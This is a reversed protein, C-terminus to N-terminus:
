RQIELHSAANSRRVGDSKKASQMESRCSGMHPEQEMQFMPNILKLLFRIPQVQDTNKTRMDNEIRRSKHQSCLIVNAPAQTKKELLYM